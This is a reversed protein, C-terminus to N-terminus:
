VGQYLLDHMLQCLYHLNGFLFPRDFKFHIEILNLDNAFKLTRKIIWV